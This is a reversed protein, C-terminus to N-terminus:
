RSRRLRNTALPAVLMVAGSYLITGSLPNIDAMIRSLDMGRMLGIMVEFAITLLAWAAGLLLLQRSGSVRTWRICLYSIALVLILGIPWGLRAAAEEGIRPVLLIGRLVGHATEVLMILLWVLLGRAM